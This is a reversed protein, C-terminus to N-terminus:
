RHPQTKDVYNRGPDPEGDEGSGYEGGKIGVAGALKEGGAVLVPGGNATDVAGLGTVGRELGTLPAVRSSQPIGTWKGAQGEGMFKATFKQELFNLTGKLMDDLGNLTAQGFTKFVDDNGHGWQWAINGACALGFIGATTGFTITLVKSGMSIVRYAMTAFQNAQAELEVAAPAGIISGAAICIAAAFIALLTIVIFMLYIFVAIMVALIWLAIAVVWAMAIAADLQQRYEQTRQEFATRDDGEWATQQVGRTLTEIQEKAKTLEDITEKWGEAADWIKKPDGQAQYVIPNMPIAAPIVTSVFICEYMAAQALGKAAGLVDTM